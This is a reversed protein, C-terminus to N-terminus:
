PMVELVARLHREVVERGRLASGYAPAVIEPELATFIDKVRRALLGPSSMPLFWFKATAAARVIETEPLDAPDDIVSAGGPESRVGHTLFDSTFLTRTEPDFLWYSAINRVVAELVTLRRQPTLEVEAGIKRRDIQEPVTMPREGTMRVWDFHDFPNTQGGTHMRVVRYADAIAGVNGVTDYEARTLFISVPSGPALLSALQDMIPRAVAALGTDVLMAESGETLLYANFPVHLGPLTPAISPPRDLPITAGLAHLRGPM